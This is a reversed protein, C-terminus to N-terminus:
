TSGRVPNPNPQKRTEWGLRAWGQQAQPLLLLLTQHRLFGLQILNLPFDPLLLGKPENEAPTPALPPPPLKRASLSLYVPLQALPKQPPIHTCIRHLANGLRDIYLLDALSYSRCEDGLVVLHLGYKSVHSTHTVDDGELHWIVPSLLFPCM